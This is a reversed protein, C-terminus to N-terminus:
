HQAARWRLYMVVWVTVVGACFVLLWPEGHSARWLLYILAYVVVFATM